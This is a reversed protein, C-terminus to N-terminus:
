RFRVERERERRQQLDLYRELDCTRVRLVSRVTVTSLEKSHILRYISSRSTSLYEAAEPITLVPKFCMSTAGHSVALMRRQRGDSPWKAVM